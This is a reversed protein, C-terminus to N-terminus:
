FSNVGQGLPNSKPLHLFSSVRLTLYAERGRVGWRGLHKELSTNMLGCCILCSLRSTATNILGRSVVRSLELRSDKEGRNM